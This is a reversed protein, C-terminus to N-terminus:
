EDDKTRPYKVTAPDARVFVGMITMNGCFGCTHIGADTVQVPTRIEIGEDVVTHNRHIWCSECCPQSWSMKQPTDTM